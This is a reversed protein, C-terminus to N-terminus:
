LNLSASQSYSPSKFSPGRSTVYQGGPGREPTRGWRNPGQQKLRSESAGPFKSVATGGAGSWSASTRPTSSLAPKRAPMKSTFMEAVLAAAPLSLGQVSM